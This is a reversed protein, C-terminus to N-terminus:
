TGPGGDEAIHCTACLGLMEGYVRSRDEPTLARAAERGLEHVRRARRDAGPSYEDWAAKTDLLPADALMRIGRSWAIDSPGILGDWLREIAWLHRQMHSEMDSWAPPDDPFGFEIDVGTADHCNGCDSAILAVSRAASEIDSADLVDEAHRRMTLVFPEYLVDLDEFPEHEALWTSPERTADLDGALIAANIATVRELHEQMHMVTDPDETRGPQQALVTSAIVLLLMPIALAFRLTM